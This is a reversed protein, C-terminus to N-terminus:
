DTIFFPIAYARVEEESMNLSQAVSQISKKKDGQFFTLPTFPAIAGQSEWNDNLDSRTFRATAYNNPQTSGYLIRANKARDLLVLSGLHNTFGAYAFGNDIVTEILAKNVKFSTQYSKQVTESFHKALEKKEEEYRSEVMWDHRGFIPPKAENLKKLDKVFDPVMILGWEHPRRMIAKSFESILFAKFLPNASSRNMEDFVGLIGEKYYQQSQSILRQTPLILNFLESEPTVEENSLTIGKAKKLQEDKLEFKGSDFLEFKLPIFKTNDFFYGSREVISSPGVKRNRLKTPGDCFKYFTKGSPIELFFCKHLNLYRRYNSIENLVVREAEDVSKPFFQNKNRNQYYATWGQSQGPRLIEGIVDSFNKANAFITNATSHELTGEFKEDEFNSIISKFDEYNAAVKLEDINKRLSDIKDIRSKLETGQTRFGEKVEDNVFAPPIVVRMSDTLEQDVSHIRKVYEEDRSVKTINPENILIKKVEELAARRRSRQLAIYNSRHNDWKNQLTTKLKNLEQKLDTASERIGTELDQFEKWYEDIPRGFGSDAEVGLRNIDDVLLNYKDLEITMWGYAKKLDPGMRALFAVPWNYTKTSQYLKEFPRVMRGKKYADFEVMMARSKWQSFGFYSIFFIIFSISSIKILRKRRNKNKLQSIKKDLVNKFEGVRQDVGGDPLLGIKEFEAWSNTLKRRASEIENLPAKLVVSLNSDLNNFVKDFRLRIDKSKKEKELLEIEDKIWKKSKEITDKSAQDLDTNHKQTIREIEEVANKVVDLKRQECQDALNSILKNAIKEDSAKREANLWHMAKDWSEGKKLEDFPLQDLRDAVAMANLKDGSEVIEDLEKLEERFHRKLIRRTEDKAAEDTPDIKLIKGLCSLLVPEDKRIAADRYKKRLFDATGNWEKYLELLKDFSGTEIKKPVEFDNYSCYEIWEDLLPFREIVELSDLVPDGEEALTVAEKASTADFCQDLKNILKECLESFKEATIKTSDSLEDASLLVRIENTLLKIPLQFKM